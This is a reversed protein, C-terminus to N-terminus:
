LPGEKLGKASFGRFFEQIHDEHVGCPFVYIDWPVVQIRAEPIPGRDFALRFISRGEVREISAGQVRSFGVATM